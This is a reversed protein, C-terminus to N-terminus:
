NHSVSAEQLKLNPNQIRTTYATILTIGARKADYHEDLSPYSWNTLM